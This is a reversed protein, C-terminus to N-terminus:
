YPLFHPKLGMKFTVLEGNKIVHNIKPYLSKFRGLFYIIRINSDGIFGGIGFPAISSLLQDQERVTTNGHCFLIAKRHHCKLPFYVGHGNKNFIIAKSGNYKSLFTKLNM